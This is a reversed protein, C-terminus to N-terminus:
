YTLGAQMTFQEAVPGLALAPLFTLGGVIVVTGVLLGVFQAGDTQFTGLSAPVIKKAALGGAVCLVPVIVLFRGAFMALALTMNFFPTNANLGAFASGNTAAGSTYAYLLESFGHPGANNLGALGAPLVAAVAGLVLIFAPATLLALMTMKIENAEIKKGLYEPTRGIMLGAVFVAVIAFLLMGFLGSGPGGVIVEDLMMNAMLMLSSLPMFSDHMSDVAGDSSATTVTAFLASQGIGFRVEKGEMNGGAQSAGASQDLHLAALVPNHAAEATYVTTVGALFLMAMAAFLAWGQREDGAMRGFTNTLATGVLFILLMEVLGALATPDEFPHASNANFFGGGDGSLLKIAEQSAVPGLALLQPAGNLTTAQVYAGLTQPVGQWVFFLTAICSIPLLIYLTARTLDVWVNGITTVSRRAFGRVLAIAVAMGAAASLFSQVTIGAIQTLYSLTTEGAYSQWSTNTAFSVATNLALDPPVAAFHQPNLPLEQQLRQLAYLMVIGALHFALLGAAYTYWPQEKERDVGALRYVTSEVPGLLRQLPPPAGGFVRAMFGGLPRVAATVLAAFLAIQLWGPLTM